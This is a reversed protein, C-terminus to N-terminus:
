FPIDDGAPLKQPTEYDYRDVKNRKKGDYEEQILHVEGTRQVCRMATLEGGDALDTLGVCRCFDVVKKKFASTLWDYVFVKAGGKGDYVHLTIEIMDNGAKSTKQEAKSVEFSYKAEPLLFTGGSDDDAWDKTILM